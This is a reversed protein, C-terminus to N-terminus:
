LSFNPRASAEYAMKGNKDGLCVDKELSQLMSSTPDYSDYQKRSFANTYQALGDFWSSIQKPSSPPTLSLHAIADNEFQCTSGRM